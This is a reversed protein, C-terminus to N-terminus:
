DRGVGRTSERTMSISDIPRNFMMRLILDANDIIVWNYHSGLVKNRNDFSIFRDSPIDPNIARLREAEEETPCIMVSSPVARM